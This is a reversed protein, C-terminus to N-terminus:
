KYWKLTIHNLKTDDIFRSQYRTLSPLGINDTVSLLVLGQTEKKLFLAICILPMMPSQINVEDECFREVM